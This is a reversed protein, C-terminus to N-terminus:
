RSWQKEGRPVGKTRGRRIRCDRRHARYEELSEQKQVHIKMVISFIASERDEHSFTHTYAHTCMHTRKMLTCIRIISFFYLIRCERANVCRTRYFVITEFRAVTKMEEISSPAYVPSFFPSFSLFFFLLFGVGFQEFFRYVFSFTRYPGSSGRYLCLPPHDENLGTRYSPDRLYMNSSMSRRRRIADFLLASRRGAGMRGKGSASSATPFHSAAPILLGSRKGLECATTDTIAFKKTTVATFTTTTSTSTWRGKPSLRGRYHVM